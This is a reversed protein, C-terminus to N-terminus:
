EGEISRRKLEERENESLASEAQHEALVDLYTKEQSRRAKRVVKRNRERMRYLRMGVAETWGLLREIVFQVAHLFAIRVAGTGLQVSLRRMFHSLRLVQQDLAARVRSLILRGGRSSEMRLLGLFLLLLGGSAAATIAATIM